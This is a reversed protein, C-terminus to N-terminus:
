KHLNLNRNIFNILFVNTDPRQPLVRDLRVLPAISGIKQGHGSGFPGFCFFKNDNKGGPRPMELGPGCVYIEHRKNDTHCLRSGLLSVRMSLSTSLSPKSSTVVLSPGLSLDGAIFLLLARALPNDTVVVFLVNHETIRPEENALIMYAAGLFFALRIQSLNGLFEM